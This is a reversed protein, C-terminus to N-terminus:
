YTNVEAGDNLGDNDSDSDLPDTNETNIEVSDSLGDSDSDSALPNTQHTNVEAGDSLGDSDSDSSNPNTLHTSVEANDSLGDSDSDSALPNTNHTNVEAGDNLGDGDSDANNPNTGLTAEQADTLGDGDSDTVVAPTTACVQASYTSENLVFDRVKVRYCYQTNPSLGTDSYTTSSQWASDTGGSNTTTEDFQYPSSNLGSNADSGANAIVQIETSSIATVSLIGNNM